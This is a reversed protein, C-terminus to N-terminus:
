GPAVEDGPINIAPAFAPAVLYKPEQQAFMSAIIGGAQRKEAATAGALRTAAWWAVFAPGDQPPRLTTWKPPTSLPAALQLDALIADQQANTLASLDAYIAFVSRARRPRGDHAEVLSDLTMKEAPMLDRSTVVHITEAEDGVTQVDTVPLGAATCEALLQHNSLTAYPKLYQYVAV